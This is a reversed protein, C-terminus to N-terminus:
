LDNLAKEIRKASEDPTLEETDIILLPKPMEPFDFGGSTSIQKYLNADTLKGFKKRSKNNIRKLIENESCKLEVFHIESGSNKIIEVLEDILNREVTAEPHFTFIFSQKAVSAERFAEKWIKARLKNFGSTGFEFLTNVLDVTLHNHFLPINIKESLIKGITFKGSAADGYIFIVFMSKDQNKM